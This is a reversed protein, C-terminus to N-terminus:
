RYGAEKREIPTMKSYSNKRELYKNVLEDTWKELCADKVEKPVSNLDSEPTLTYKLFPNDSKNTTRYYCISNDPSFTISVVEEEM